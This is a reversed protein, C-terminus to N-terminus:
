AGSRLEQAAKDLVANIFKYSDTAGYRKALDVAENIAVKAPVDVCHVFEVMAILLISRGVADLQQMSRDAFRQIVQDLEEASAVCHHLVLAFYSADARALSGDSEFQALLEAESSEAIQWQYLARVLCDRSAHRGANSGYKQKAM